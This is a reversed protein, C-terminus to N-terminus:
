IQRKSKGLMSSARHLISRAVLLYNWPPNKGELAKKCEEVESPYDFFLYGYKEARTVPEISVGKKTLHKLKASEYVM